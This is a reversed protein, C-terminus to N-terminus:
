VFPIKIIFDLTKVYQRVILYDRLKRASLLEILRYKNSMIDWKLPSVDSAIALRINHQLVNNDNHIHHLQQYYNVLKDDAGTAYLLKDTTWQKFPISFLRAFCHAGQIAQEITIKTFLQQWSNENPIYPLWGFSTNLGLQELDNIITDINSNIQTDLSTFNQQIALARNRAMSSSSIIYLLIDNFHPNDDTIVKPLKHCLHHWNSTDDLYSRHNVM